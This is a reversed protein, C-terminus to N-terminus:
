KSTQFYVITKLHKIQIYQTIKIVQILIEIQIFKKFFSLFFKSFFVEQGLGESITKTQHVKTTFWAIM